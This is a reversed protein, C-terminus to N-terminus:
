RWYPTAPLHVITSPGSGSWRYPDATNSVWQPSPTTAFPTVAYTPRANSYGFWQMAALRRQRQEARYEAAARVANRPDQYEERAREYFWMEQTPALESMSTPVRAQPPQVLVPPQQAPRPAPSVPAQAMRPPAYMIGGPAPYDQAQALPAMALTCAITWAARNMPM